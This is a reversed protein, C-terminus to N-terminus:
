SIINKNKSNKITHLCMLYHRWNTNSHPVHLEKKGSLLKQENVGMRVFNLRACFLYLYNQFEHFFNFISRM